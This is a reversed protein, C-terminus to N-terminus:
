VKFIGAAAIGIEGGGVSCHRSTERVAAALMSFLVTVRVAREVAEDNASDGRARRLKVRSPAPGSDVLFYVVEPFILGPVFIGHSFPCVHPMNLVIAKSGHGAQEEDNHALFIRLKDAGDWVVM